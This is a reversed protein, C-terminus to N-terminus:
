SSSRSHESLVIPRLSLRNRAIMAVVCACVLAVLPSFFFFKFRGGVWSVHVVFECADNRHPNPVVGGPAGHANHIQGITTSAVRRWESAATSEHCDRVFHHGSFVRRVPRESCVISLSPLYTSSLLGFPVLSRWLSILRKSLSCPSFRHIGIKDTAWGCLVFAIRSRLPEMFYVRVDM